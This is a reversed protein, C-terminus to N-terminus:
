QGRQIAAGGANLLEFSEKRVETSKAARAGPAPFAIGAAVLILLAARVRYVRLLRSRFPPGRM